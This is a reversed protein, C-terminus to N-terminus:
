PAVPATDGERKFERDLCDQYDWQAFVECIQDGNCGSIDNSFELECTGAAAATPMVATGAIGALAATVFLLKRM